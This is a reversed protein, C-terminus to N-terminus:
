AFIIDSVKFRFNLMFYKFNLSINNIDNWKSYKKVVPFKNWEPFSVYSEVLKQELNLCAQRVIEDVHVLNKNRKFGYFYEYFLVIRDQCPLDPCNEM